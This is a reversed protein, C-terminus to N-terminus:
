YLGLNKLTVILGALVSIKDSQRAALTSKEIPKVLLVHSFSNCTEEFNQRRLFVARGSHGQNEKRGWIVSHTQLYAAM